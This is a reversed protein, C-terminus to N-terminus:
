NNRLLKGNKVLLFRSLQTAAMAEVLSNYTVGNHIIKPTAKQRKSTKVAESNIKKKEEATLYPAPKKYEYAVNRNNTIKKCKYKKYHRRDGRAVASMASANLKHQKCFELMNTILLVENAPTIVEWKDALKLKQEDKMAKGKNHTEIEGAAFRRKKTASIKSGNGCDGGGATPSINYYGNSTACNFKDLYYQERLLINSTFKVYELIEREFNEIGYKKKANEFRKGSGTYGDDTTGKHSGIYKMGNLKNTWEYIFGVYMKYDGHM